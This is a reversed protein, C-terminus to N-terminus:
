CSSFRDVNAMEREDIPRLTRSSLTPRVTNTRNRTAMVTRTFRRCISKSEVNLRRSIVAGSHLNIRWRCIRDVTRLYLLSLSQHGWTVTDSAKMPCDGPARAVGRCSTTVEEHQQNHQCLGVPAVTDPLNTQQHRTLLCSTICGCTGPFHTCSNLANISAARPSIVIHSLRINHM